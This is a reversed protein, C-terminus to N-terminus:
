YEKQNKVLGFIREAETENEIYKQIAYRVQREKILHGRWDDQRTALIEADLALALGTNQGLNDYLARRASTTLSQPYTTASPNKVQRTLDVLREL